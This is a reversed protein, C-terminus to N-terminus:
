LDELGFEDAAARKGARPSSGSPGPRSRGQGRLDVRWVEFGAQPLHGEFSVGRPHYSFIYSNMGYGPVILVPRRGPVLRREDWTQALALESGDHNPVFHEVTKM